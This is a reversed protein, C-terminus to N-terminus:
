GTGESSTGQHGARATSEEGDSETESPDIPAWQMPTQCCNSGKSQLHATRSLAVTPSGRIADIVMREMTSFSRNLTQDALVQLLHYIQPETFAITSHGVSLRIPSAEDSYEKLIARSCGSFDTLESHAM